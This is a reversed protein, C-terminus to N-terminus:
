TKGIWKEGKIRILSNPKAITEYCIADIPKREIYFLSDLAVVGEPFALSETILSQTQSTQDSDHWKRQLASKFNKKSVKEQLATSLNGWLKSGIDRSLYNSAYNEAEAIKEYTQNHWAGRLIIVELDSLHRGTTKLILNDATQWAIKWTFEKQINM